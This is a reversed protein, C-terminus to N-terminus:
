KITQAHWGSQELRERLWSPEALQHYKILQQQLEKPLADNCLFIRAGQGGNTGLVHGRPTDEASWEFPVLIIKYRVSGKSVEIVVITVNRTKVPKGNL